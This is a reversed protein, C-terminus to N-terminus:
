IVTTDSAIQQRSPKPTTCISTLILWYKTQIVKQICKLETNTSHYYLIQQKQLRLTMLAVVILNM